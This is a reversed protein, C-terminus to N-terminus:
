ACQKPSRRDCTSCFITKFKDIAAVVPLETRTRHRYLSCFGTWDRPKAYRTVQSDLHTLDEHLEFHQCWTLRESCMSRTGMMSSVVNAIRDDPLFHVAQYIRAFALLDEDTKEAWREISGDKDEHLESVTQRYITKGNIHEEAPAIHRTYGLARSIQLVERATVITEQEKDNIDYWNALLMLARVAGETDDAQQYIGHLSQIEGLIREFEDTPIVYKAEAFSMHMLLANTTSIIHFFLRLHLADAYHIPHNSEIARQVLSETKKYMNQISAIASEHNALTRTTFPPVNTKERILFAFVTHILAANAETCEAHLRVIAAHLKMSLTSHSDAEIADSLEQVEKLYQIRREDDKASLHSLRARDLRLQRKFYAPAQAEILQQQKEWEIYTLCGIQYDCTSKLSGLLHLDIDSLGSTDAAVSGLHGRANFFHGLIYHAFGLVLQVMPEAVKSPSLIQSQQIVQRPYGASVAAFGSSIIFQYAQDPTRLALTEPNIEFAVGESTGAKLLCDHQERHLRGEQIIRQHIDDWGTADLMTSFRFTVTEQEFWAPNKQNLRSVEERAWVYRMENLKSLWIVYIPSPGNLLYNLNSTKVTKSFTGDANLVDDTTGKLQVHSRLNTAGNDLLAELSCDVGKDSQREDRFIFRDTPVASQFHAVTDRELRDNEDVGPLPGVGPPRTSMHYNNCSELM